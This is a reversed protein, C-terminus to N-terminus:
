TRGVTPNVSAIALVRSCVGKSFLDCGVLSERVTRAALSSVPLSSQPDTSEEVPSRVM